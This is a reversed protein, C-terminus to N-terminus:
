RMVLAFACAIAPAASRRRIASTYGVGACYVLHGAGDNIEYYDHQCERAKM